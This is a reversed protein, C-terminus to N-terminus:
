EKILTNNAHLKGIFNLGYYESDVCQPARANDHEYCIHVHGNEPINENKRTPFRDEVKYIEKNREYKPQCSM